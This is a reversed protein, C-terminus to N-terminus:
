HDDKIAIIVLKKTPKGQEFEIVLRWQDNLRLSYQPSNVPLKEIGLFKCAQLDVEDQAQRVFNVLKRYARVIELPRGGTYETDVELRELDTDDSRLEM